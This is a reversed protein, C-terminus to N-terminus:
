ETWEGWTCNKCDIMYYYDDHAADLVGRRELKRSGCQPCVLYPLPDGTKAQKDTLKILSRQLTEAFEVDEPHKNKLIAMVLRNVDGGKRYHLGVRDSVYKKLPTDDLMIPVLRLKPHRKVRRMFSRVELKVWRSRSAPESWLLAMLDTRAIGERISATLAGGKQLDWQDFWVNHGLSAFSVAIMRALKKNANNHSVFVTM